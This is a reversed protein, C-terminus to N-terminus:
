PVCFAGPPGVACHTGPPCDDGGSGCPGPPGCQCGSQFQLQYYNCEQGAPCDGNCQSMGCPTSGVPLCACNPLPYGGIGSCQEGSPCDGNCVPWTDGCPQAAAICLCTSLDRTGCAAGPPCSGGCQDGSFSGSECGSPVYAGLSADSCDALGAAGANRASWVNVGDKTITAPTFLACNRQSGSTIRIGIPGTPPVLTFGVARVQIKLQKGEKIQVLAVPTAGGALKDRFKYSGPPGAKATWGPSGSGPNVAFTATPHSPAFLEVVLGATSPDDGGGITPFLALADKSVFGALERGSASRKLTLSAGSIPRDVAAAPVAVVVVVLLAVLLLSRARM